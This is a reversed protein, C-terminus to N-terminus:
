KRAGTSPKPPLNVKTMPSNTQIGEKSKNPSDPTKKAAYQYDISPKKPVLKDLYQNAYDKSAQKAGDVEEMEEKTLLPSDKAQNAYGDKESNISDNYDTTMVRVMNINKGLLQAIQQIMPETAPYKFEAKFIHVSENELDPFGYPDKQIPTSKPDSISVPDFKTLNYKFMDIFNKDLEGAIKITYHYTRVSETLYTRLSKM